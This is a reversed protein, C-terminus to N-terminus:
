SKPAASDASVPGGVTSGDAGPTDGVPPADDATLSLYIDAFNSLQVVREVDTPKLALFYTIAQSTSGRNISNESNDAAAQVSTAQQTSVDLVTVNTLTLETRPTHTPTGLVAADLGADGNSAQGFLGYVNVTDGPAIYGAGGNAYNVTVAVGDFGEPVQINSLSRAALQSTSITSGKTVDVAFIQNEIAGVSTLVSVPQSGAAVEETTLLGQEIADAGPTNAPIDDKAVLVSQTAQSSGARVSGDDDDSVILYVIAGGIFLFAIGFLIILNSRQRM